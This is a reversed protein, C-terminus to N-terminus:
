SNQPWAPIPAPPVDVQALTTITGAAIAALVAGLTMFSNQVFGHVAGYITLIQASTLQTGGVSGVWTFVAAPNGSALAAAGNLQALSQPDLSAEVSQAGAQVLIMGAAIAAQKRRAYAALQTATPPLPAEPEIDVISIQSKDPADRKAIRMLTQEATEGPLADGPAATRFGISGSPLVIKAALVM